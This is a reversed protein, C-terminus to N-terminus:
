RTTARNYRSDRDSAARSADAEAAWQAKTQCIRQPLLSGVVRESKCEMKPKAPAASKTVPASSASAGQMFFIIVITSVSM